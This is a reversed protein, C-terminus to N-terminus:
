STHMMYTQIDEITGGVKKGPNFINLPDFIRKTEEFLAYMDAGFMQAVFPTRIIGDNHEGTISGGYKLVLDYVQKNLAIIEDRVDKKSLDVLPFIHFNGNGVHGAVTFTFPHASLLADLEPLFKPYVDPDVVLDDIFPAAYLGPLNKRLLNFSERRVRWYKEPGLTGLALRTSIPLDVLELRAERAADRAASETDEAFEAMLVFKPVGGLLVMFMEPIFAFGLQIAKWLGLHRLLQPMFRVALTFTHNDYSEFSEPNHKLVKHVVEPLISIDKLFIVLMARKPKRKVLKLRAKTVLALTGQSGVILKTLDFTDNEPSYVDWLAYGSSNKSVKPARSAIQDANQRILADMKRYIEGEFTQLSKKQELEGLTLPKTTITSGDSLVVELEEVYNATKGYKLTLEGGANNAIMGGLACIERSAPYSPLLRGNAALTKKEFDRYPIGPEAVAYDRGIEILHNMFRSYSLAISDTLPGGTMDTGGSRAAIALNQGRNKCQAVYRVLESVGRASHPYVVYAPRRVFISTDRAHLDLDVSDTSVVGDVHTRLDELLSM